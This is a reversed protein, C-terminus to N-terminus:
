KAETQRDEAESEAPVQASESQDEPKMKNLGLMKENHQQISQLLSTYQEIEKQNFLYRTITVPIVIVTSIFATLATFLIEMKDPTMGTKEWYLLSYIFDNVNIKANTTAYGIADLLSQTIKSLLIISGIFYALKFCFNVWVVATTYHTYNNIIISYNRENNYIVQQYETTLPFGDGSIREWDRLQEWQRDRNTSVAVTCKRLM